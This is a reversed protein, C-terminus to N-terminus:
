MYICACTYTYLRPVIGPTTLAVPTAGIPLIYNLSEDSPYQPSTFLAFRLPSPMDPWHHNIDNHCAIPDFACVYIYICVCKNINSRKFEYMCLSRHITLIHTQVYTYIGIVNVHLNVHACSRISIRSSIWSLWLTIQSSMWSLSGKLGNFTMSAIKCKVM